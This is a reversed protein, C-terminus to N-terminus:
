DELCSILINLLKEAARRFQKIYRDRSAKTCGLSGNRINRIINLAKHYLGGEKHCKVGGLKVFLPCTTCGADYRECLACERAAFGPDSQSLLDKVPATALERWHRISSHVAERRGTGAASEVEKGTQYKQNKIVKLM